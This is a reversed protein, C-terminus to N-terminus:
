ATGEARMALLLLLFGLGTFVLVALAQGVLFSQNNLTDALDPYLAFGPAGALGCAQWAATFFSVGGGMQLDAIRQRGPASRARGRMWVWALALFLVVLVLGAGALLAFPVGPYRFAAAGHYAFYVLGVVLLPLLIRRERGAADFLRAGGLAVLIAGLPLGAAFDLLALGGAGYGLAVFDRPGVEALKDRFIWALAPSSLMLLLGCAVLLMAPWRSRGTATRTSEEAAM